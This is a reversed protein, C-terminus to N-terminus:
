RYYGWERMRQYAYRAKDGQNVAQLYRHYDQAAGKINQMGELAYGKFFITNPNGPLRKEFDQFERYAGEFDSIQIKAFGSLHYAQAEQPYVRQAKEAYPVAERYQKQLIRCISMMVLGAYDNPAMGLARKLHTEAEAFKKRGMLKQGKQMEEIAGKLTRLRSTHDMYRERYLPLNKALRYNKEANEKATQYREESMPHTAFMLEIASPEKRSLGRLVDMLGIMGQPNYETRVMYKMGLADAERENDRSYSALLAGAGVMGLQSALQGYGAGQTGALVALGGVLTQT